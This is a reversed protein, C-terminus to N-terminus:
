DCAIQPYQGRGDIVISREITVDDDGFVHVEGAGGGFRGCAYDIAKQKAQDVVDEFKMDKANPEKLEAVVEPM